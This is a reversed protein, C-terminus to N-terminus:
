LSKLREALRETKREMGLKNRDAIGAVAVHTRGKGSTLEVCVTQHSM